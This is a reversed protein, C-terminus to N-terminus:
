HASFKSFAYFYNPNAPRYPYKLKPKQLKEQKQVDVFSSGFFFSFSFYFHASGFDSFLNLSLLCFCFFFLFNTLFRVSKKPHSDQVESVNKHHSKKQCDCVRGWHGYWLKSKWSITSRLPHLNEDRLKLMACGSLRTHVSDSHRLKNEPVM